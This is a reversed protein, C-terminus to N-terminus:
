GLVSHHSCIDKAALILRTIWTVKFRFKPNKPAIKTQPNKNSSSEYSANAITRATVPLTFIM